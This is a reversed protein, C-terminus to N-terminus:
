KPTIINGKGIRWWAGARDRYDWHPGIPDPHDLDPHWSEGTEQNYYNGEKSGQPGSGRWSTGDPAEAPDDGPYTVDPVETVDTAEESGARAESVTSEDQSDSVAWISIGGLALIGLGYLMDGVPIPGDAACLWWM